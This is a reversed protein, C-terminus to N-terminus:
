KSLKTDETLRRAYVPIVPFLRMTEKIVQDMYTLKKLGTQDIEENSMCSIIEDYVKDQLFM